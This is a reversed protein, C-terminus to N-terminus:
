YISYFSQEINLLSPLSIFINLSILFILYLHDYYILSIFLYVQLSNNLIYQSYINFLCSVINMGEHSKLRLLKQGLLFVLFKYYLSIINYIM